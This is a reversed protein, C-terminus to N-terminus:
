EDESLKLSIDLAIAPSTAALGSIPMYLSIYFKGNITHFGRLTIRRGPSFPGGSSGPYFRYFLFVQRHCPMAPPFLFVGGNINIKEGPSSETHPRWYTTLISKWNYIRAACDPLSPQRV